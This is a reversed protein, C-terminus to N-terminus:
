LRLAIVFTVRRSPMRSTWPMSVIVETGTVFLTAMAMASTGRSPTFVSRAPSLNMGTFYPSLAPRTTIKIPPELIEMGFINRFYAKVPASFCHLMVGTTDTLRQLISGNCDPSSTFM